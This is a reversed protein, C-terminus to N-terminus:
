QYFIAPFGDEGPAKTPGMEFLAERIEEGTYYATLRKNDEEHICRNIGSLLYDFNEQNESAFLNQFYSMALERM